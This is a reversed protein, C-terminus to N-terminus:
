PAQVFAVRFGRASSHSRDAAPWRRAARCQWGENYYAASKVVRTTGRAPGRPDRVFNAGGYDDAYWDGTMEWVNGHMDYLGLNNPKYSAVKCTRNLSQGAKGGNYARGDFNAEGASLSDQPKAFRIPKTTADPGGRCAYEWQAETPMVYKWGSRRKDRANLKDIFALADEYTVNEVPFDSTDMGKVVGAGGGTKSFFAPNRVMVKEYQRQTTETSALYFDRTIEVKHQQEGSQRNPENAPSGMTFAGRRVFVLTMGLDNTFPRSEHSLSLDVREETVDGLAGPSGLGMLVSAALLGGLVAALRCRNV